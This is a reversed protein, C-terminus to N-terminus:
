AMNWETDREYFKESNSWNIESDVIVKQFIEVIKTQM